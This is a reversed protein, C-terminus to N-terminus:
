MNMDFISYRDVGRGVHFKAYLIVITQDFTQHQDLPPATTFIVFCVTKMDTSRM